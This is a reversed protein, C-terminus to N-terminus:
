LFLHLWDSANQANSISLQLDRGSAIVSGSRSAHPRQEEARFRLPLKRWVGDNDPNGIVSTAKPDKPCRRACGHPVKTIGPFLQCVPFLIDRAEPM